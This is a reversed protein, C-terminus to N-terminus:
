EVMNVEPVLMVDFKEKVSDCVAKAFAAIERGTAGGYNVIVLAQHEYTGVNGVRKGKWGCQEILWAASIKVKGDDTAYQPMQPYHRAMKRAYESSVVPNMFFSGASGLQSVDPLKAARIEKVAMRVNMPCLAGKEEVKSRLNGYDLRYEANKRLRFTVYTVVRKNKEVTKFISNRYAYDCEQQSFCRSSGDAISITDVHAIFEGVEVGYAGINQVAAAGVEGPIMSLNELGQWGQEVTYAVFDDWIMGSGVRLLVEHENDTLVEVGCIASHLVTGEYDNMFLLNSGGGIVLYPHTVGERIIETLESESQFEIFQAATADIGFTNHSLLSYFPYKKIMNRHKNDTDYIKCFYRLFFLRALM